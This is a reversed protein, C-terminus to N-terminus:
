AALSEHYDEGATATQSIRGVRNSAAGAVIM